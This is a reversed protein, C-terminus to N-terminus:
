GLIATVYNVSGSVAVFYLVRWLRDGDWHHGENSRTLSHFIGRRPFPKRRSLRVYQPVDVFAMYLVFLFAIKWRWMMLLGICLWMTEEPIHYVSDGQVVAVWCWVQALSALVAVTYAFEPPVGNAILNLSLLIGLSIEGVTAVARDVFPSALASPVFFPQATAVREIVQVWVTGRWACAAAYVVGLRWEVTPKPNMLAVVLVAISGLAVFAQLLTVSSGKSM